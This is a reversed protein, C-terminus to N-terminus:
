SIGHKRLIDAVDALDDDVAGAAKRKGGPQASKGPGLARDRPQTLAGPAPKGRGAKRGRGRMAGSVVFLLASFGAVAIGSWVFPSFVFSVAFHAIATGFRWFLGLLGTLYAAVPLLSWAAGRLGAAAGRRRGTLWSAVLGVATLGSAAAFAIWNFALM